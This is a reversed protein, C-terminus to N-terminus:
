FCGGAVRSGASAASRKPGCGCGGAIRGMPVHRITLPGRVHRGNVYLPGAVYGHGMALASGHGGVVHAPGYGYTRPCYQM